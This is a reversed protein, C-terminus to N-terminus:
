AGVCKFRSKFTKVMANKSVLTKANFSVPHQIHIVWLDDRCVVTMARSVRRAFDVDARGVGADFYENFGQVKIYQAKSMATCFNLGRNCYKSHQYWKATPVPYDFHDVVELDPRMGSCLCACVVYVDKNTGFEEDLGELINVPHFCEPSTLIVFEGKAVDVGYNIASCPCAYNDYSMQLHVISLHRFKNLIRMLEDHDEGVNKKDELIMIDYDKRDKYHHAFSTLMSYLSPRKYYTVIFSYKV